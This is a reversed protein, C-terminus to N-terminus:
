VIEFQLTRQDSECVEPYFLRANLTFKGVKKEGRMHMTIVNKKMIPEIISAAGVENEEEDTILIEIYPRVQFPTTEVYLRFRKPGDDEVQEPKVEIFRVEQPPVPVASNDSSDIEPFFFSLDDTM